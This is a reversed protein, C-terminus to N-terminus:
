TVLDYALRSHHKSSRNNNTPSEPPVITYLETGIAHQNQLFGGSHQGSRDEETHESCREDNYDEEEVKRAYKLVVM